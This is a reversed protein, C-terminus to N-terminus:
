KSNEKEQKVAVIEYTKRGYQMALRQRAFFSSSTEIFQTTTEKRGDVWCKYTKIEKTEKEM